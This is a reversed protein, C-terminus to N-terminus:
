RQCCRSCEGPTSLAQCQQSARGLIGGSTSTCNLKTMVVVCLHVGKRSQHLTQDFDLVLDVPALPLVLEQALNHPLEQYAMLSSIGPASSVVVEAVSVSQKVGDVHVVIEVGVESQKRM